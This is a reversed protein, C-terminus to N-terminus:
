REDELEEMIRANLLARHARTRETRYHHLLEAVLWVQALVMGTGGFIFVTYWLVLLINM